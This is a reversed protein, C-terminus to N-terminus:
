LRRALDQFQPTHRIPDFEAKEIVDRLNPLGDSIARQLWGVAPKVEGALSYCFANILATDYNPFAQYSRNGLSIAAEIAGTRYALQHLLRLADPSLRDQIPFLLDYAAQYEHEHALIKALNETAIQHVVGEKSQARINLFKEKAESMHGQMFAEEAQKLALQLNEDKDQLTMPISSRWARYSEFALLLLFAGPLLDRDIFFLISCAVAIISSILFSMKIGRMGFISELFISLLRGGDLPHVPLLNIITWWLNALATIRITETWLSHPHTKELVSWLYTAFMFLLFGALPGNFVILFDKWLSLKPGQRQTVGGLGILEIQAQNGFAVATLAHGFEHILVSVVIIAVWIATGEISNSAMWGIIAALVWFFPYIRIPIKGPISIM